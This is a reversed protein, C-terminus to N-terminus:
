EEISWDGIAENDNPRVLSSATYLFAPTEPKLLQLVYFDVNWVIIM